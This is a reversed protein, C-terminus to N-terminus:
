QPLLRRYFDLLVKEEQEWNYLQRAKLCNAKLREYVVGENLLHNLAAAIEAKEVTNVLVAVEHLDNVRKYEAFQMTVQPVCAQIYDFFKNALSYLQNLGEPEVLNIGIWAGDTIAKLEAPPVMGRLIVKQELQLTQVLQRCTDMLNGDGCIILRCDIEQMAPILQELGRAENVAGQYLLYKETKVGAPLARTLPTNRITQYLVGYRKEFEKSISESVTYGNRFKPVAYREIKKWFSQVRPRRVLEKMETFLEHADYVRQCGKLQSIWLVPLISDLDIACLLHFRRFLLWCFLRLNYEAYFAKGRQFWCHLRKQAFPQNHLSDKKTRGVLTVAYGAQVLSTCIRIMRQDFNLDNTVTFCIKKLILPQHVQL